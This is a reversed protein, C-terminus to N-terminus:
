LSYFLSDVLGGGCVGADLGKYSLNVLQVSVIPSENGAGVSFGKVTETNGHVNEGFVEFTLGNVPAPGLVHIGIPHEGRQCVSPHWWLADDINKLIFAKDPAAFPANPIVHVKFVMWFQNQSGLFLAQELILEM